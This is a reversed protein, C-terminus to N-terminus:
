IRTSADAMVDLADRLTQQNDWDTPTPNELLLKSMIEMARSVEDVITVTATRATRSLPNLDIVLVQKGLAVLAECRDGDELPVLVVDASEIGKKSCISRPGELGVINGDAEAGLIEVAMVSAKTEGDNESAIEEKMSELAMILKEMREPTRYYINVEIPCGIISAALIAQRGALVTTNGNMSIVPSKAVLLRAACEKIASKASENTKEGLLYDFAEGRGHAIMASDALLGQKSAEVLKARAVLSAKRPHSDPIEGMDSM